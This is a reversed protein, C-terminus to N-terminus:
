WYCGSIRVISLCKSLFLGAWSGGGVLCSILLCFLGFGLVRYSYVHILRRIIEVVVYGMWCFRLKLLWLYHLKHMCSHDELFYQIRFLMWFIMLIMTSFPPTTKMEFFLPLRRGCLRARSCLRIIIKGISTLRRRWASSWRGRFRVNKCWRMWPSAPNVPLRRHGLRAQPSVLIKDQSTASM